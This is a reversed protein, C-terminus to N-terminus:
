LAGATSPTAPVRVHCGERVGDDECSDYCGLKDEIDAKSNVEDVPAVTLPAQEQKEPCRAKSRCRTSLIYITMVSTLSLLVVMAVLAALHGRAQKGKKGAAAEPAAPRAAVAAGM